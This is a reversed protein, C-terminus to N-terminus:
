GNGAQVLPQLTPLVCTGRVAAQTQPLNISFLPGAAGPQDRRHAGTWVLVNSAGAEPLISPVLRAHHWSNTCHLDITDHHSTLHRFNPPPRTSLLLLICDIGIDRSHRDNHVGSDFPNSPQVDGNLSGEQPSKPDFLFSFSHPLLFHPFHCSLPCLIYM